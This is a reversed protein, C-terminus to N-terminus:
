REPFKGLHGFCELPFKMMSVVKGWDDMVKARDVCSGCKKSM